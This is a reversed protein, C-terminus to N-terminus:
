HTAELMKIDFIHSTRGTSLSLQQKFTDQSKLAVYFWPNPQMGNRIPNSDDAYMGEALSGWCKNKAADHKLSVVIRERVNRGEWVMSSVNDFIVQPCSDSMGFVEFYVSTAVKLGLEFGITPSIFGSQFSVRVSTGAPLMPSGLETPTTQDLHVEHWEHSSSATAASNQAGCAIVSFIVPVLAIYTKM